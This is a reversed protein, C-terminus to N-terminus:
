IDQGPLQERRQENLWRGFADVVETTSYDGETFGLTSLVDKDLMEAFNRADTGLRGTELQYNGQADRRPVGNEDRQVYPSHTAFEDIRNQYQGSGYYGNLADTLSLNPNQSLRNALNLGDIDGNWDFDNERAIAADASAAIDGTRSTRTMASAVDGTLTVTGLNFPNTIGVQNYAQPIMFHRPLRDANVQWDLASAVHGMDVPRGDPTRMEGSYGGVAESANYDPARPLGAANIDGASARESGAANNWTDSNYYTQRAITAAAQRGMQSELQAMRENFVTFRAREVAEQPQSREVQELSTIQGQLQGIRERTQDDGGRFMDLFRTGIHRDELQQQLTGMQQRLNSLDRQTQLAQEDVTTGNVRTVAATEAPRPGARDAVQTPQFEDKFQLPTAAKRAEAQETQPKDTRNRPQEVEHTQQKRYAPQAGSNGRVPTM